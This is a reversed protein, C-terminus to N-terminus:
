PEEEEEHCFIYLHSQGFDREWILDLGLPILRSEKMPRHVVVRGEDALYGVDRLGDRVAQVSEFREAM